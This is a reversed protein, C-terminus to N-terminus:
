KGGAKARANIAKTEATHYSAVVDQADKSAKNLNGGELVEAASTLSAEAKAWDKAAYKASEAKEAATRAELASKFTTEALKATDTAQKFLPGAKALDERVSDMNKGKELTDGAEHYLEMAKGYTEPALMSAHHADAEKKLADTAGFLQDRIAQANQALAVSCFALSLAFLTIRKLMITERHINQNL